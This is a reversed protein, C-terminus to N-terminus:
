KKNLQLVCPYNQGMSKSTKLGHRELIERVPKEFYRVDDM